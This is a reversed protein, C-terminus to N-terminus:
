CIDYPMNAFDTWREGRQNTFVPIQSHNGAKLRSNIGILLQAVLLRTKSSALTDLYACTLAGGSQTDASTQTDKCGSLVIIDANQHCQMGKPLRMDMASGSHCCDLICRLMVGSLEYQCMIQQLDDDLLLGATQVDVPVLAEDQGDEEDGNTDDVHTGHGSYHFFLCDGPLTDSLLWNLGAVMNHLTPLGVVCQALDRSVPRDVLLHINAAYGVKSLLRAINTADKVCGHLENATGVYDIGIVLAKHRCRVNQTGVPSTTVVPQVPPRPPPVQQQIVPGVTAYTPHVTSKHVTQICKKIDGIAPLVLERLGQNICKQIHQKIWSDAATDNADRREREVVRKVSRFQQM